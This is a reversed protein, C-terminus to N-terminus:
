PSKVKKLKRFKNKRGRRCTTLGENLKINLGKHQNTNRAEPGKVCFNHPTRTKVRLNENFLSNPILSKSINNHLRVSLKLPVIERQKNKLRATHM